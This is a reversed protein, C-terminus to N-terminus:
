RKAGPTPRGTAAASILEVSEGSKEIKKLYKAPNAKVRPICMECCVYIRKGRYDVFLKKDIPNGLVPCITQPHKKAIGTEPASTSVPLVEVSQGAAEIKAIYKAPDKAIEARCGGCCIYIRKGQYDVYQTKDIEGGMVPCTTQPRPTAATTTGALSPLVAAFAAIVISLAITNLRRIM